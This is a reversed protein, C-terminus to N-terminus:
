AMARQVASLLKDANYPKELFCKAGLGYARARTEEVVNASVVVVPVDATRPSKKLEKLVTLGDMGPMRIDLVIADPISASAQELGKRGDSAGCVVYGSAQLRLTMGQVIQRDDDIILIHNKDSL